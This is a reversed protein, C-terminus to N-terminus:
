VILPLWPAVMLIDIKFLYQHLSLFFFSITFRLLSDYSFHKIQYIHYGTMKYGTMKYGTMKCLFDGTLVNLVNFVTISTKFSMQLERKYEYYFPNKMLFQIIM